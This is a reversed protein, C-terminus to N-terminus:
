ALMFSSTNEGMKEDVTAFTFFRVKLEFKPLTRNSILLNCVKTKEDDEGYAFVLVNMTEKLNEEIKAKIALWKDASDFM